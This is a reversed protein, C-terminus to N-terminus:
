IQLDFILLPTGYDDLAKACQDQERLNDIM